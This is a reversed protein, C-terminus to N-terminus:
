LSDRKMRRSADLRSVRWTLIQSCKQQPSGQARLPLLRGEICSVCSIRYWDWPWSSGRSFSIAIWELRRVQFLGHTWPPSCDMPGCSDSVVQQSFWSWWMEATVAAFHIGKLSNWLVTARMTRPNPMQLDRLSAYLSSCVWIHTVMPTRSCIGLSGLPGSSEQFCLVDSRDSSDPHCKGEEGCWHRTTLIEQGSCQHRKPGFQDDSPLFSSDWASFSTWCCDQARRSSALGVGVVGTIVTFFTEAPNGQHDLLKGPPESPLPDAQLAPARPEIGPDPLDRPSPFPLGSWHEQRSFGM